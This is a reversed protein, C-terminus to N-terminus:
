GILDTLDATPDILDTLDISRRHKASRAKNDIDLYRAYLGSDIKDIRDVKDIKGELSALTL